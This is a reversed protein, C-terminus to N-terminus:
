KTHRRVTFANIEKKTRRSQIDDNYEEKLRSTQYNMSLILGIGILNAVLATGGQSIFPLPIGTLPLLGINMGINEFVHFLIMSTVGVSLYTYFENKTTFCVKILQYILVFYLVILIFSGLFGFNEAITTFIMDSERVPVYVESIGIGKGTAGGTAIAIIANRLQYSQQYGAGFPDLWADIRAFQYPKFGILLLLNRHAMTLYILLVSLSALILFLPILIKFTIGSMLLIGMMIAFIVLTTGFDNELIVLILYPLSWGIVKFFLRWDSKINRRRFQTNHQTVVRSLFIILAIKAFESPQFSLPGLSFWSKAGSVAALQRDYLFLVAFLLIFGIGYGIQALRWLRKADFQMLIVIAIAGVGYWLLHMITARISQNGILVTTSYVAIMSMIFLIFITLIISYDIRYKSNSSFEHM